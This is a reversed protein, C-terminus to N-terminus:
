ARSALALKARHLQVTLQALLNVRGRFVLRLHRHVARNEALAVLHHLDLIVVVQRPAAFVARHAFAYIVAVHADDDIHVFIGTTQTHFDIVFLHQIIKLVRRCFQLEGVGHRYM